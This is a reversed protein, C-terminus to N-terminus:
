GISRSWQRRAALAAIIFSSFAFFLGGILASGVAAILIAAALLTM